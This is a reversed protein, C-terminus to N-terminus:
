SLVGAPIAADLKGLVDGVTLDGSLLPRVKDYFDGFVAKEHEAAETAGKIANDARATLIKKAMDLDHATMAEVAAYRTPTVRMRGPLEPFLPLQSVPAATGNEALWRSLERETDAAILAAVYEPHARVAVTLLALADARTSAGDLVRQGEKAIDAAYWEPKKV